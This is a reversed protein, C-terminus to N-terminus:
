DVGPRDPIRELGGGFQREFRAGEGIAFPADGGIPLEIEALLFGDRGSRRGDPGDEGRDLFDVGPCLVIDILGGVFEAGRDANGRRDQFQREAALGPADLRDARFDGGILLFDGIREVAEPEDGFCDPDAIDHAAVATSTGRSALLAIFRLRDKRGGSTTAAQIRGTASITPQSIAASEPRIAARTKGAGLATARAKQCVHRSPLRAALTPTLESRASSPSNIPPLRPKASPIALPRHRGASIASSEESCISRLMGCRAMMGSTIRHNPMPSSAFIKRTDIPTRNGM